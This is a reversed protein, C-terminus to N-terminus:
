IAQQGRKKQTTKRGGKQNEMGDNPLREGGKGKLSVLPGGGEIYFVTTNKEGKEVHWDRSPGGRVERKKEYLMAL